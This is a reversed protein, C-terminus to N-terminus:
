TPTPTPTPTPTAGFAVRANHLTTATVLGAAATFQFLHRRTLGTREHEECGCPAAVATQATSM